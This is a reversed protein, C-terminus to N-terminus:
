MTIHILNPPQPHKQMNITPHVEMSLYQIYFLQIISGAAIACGQILPSSWTGGDNRMVRENRYGVFRIKTKNILEKNSKKPSPNKSFIYVKKKTKVSSIQAKVHILDVIISEFTITEVHM